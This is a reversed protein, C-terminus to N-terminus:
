RGTELLSEEASKLLIGKAGRLDKPDKPGTPGRAGRFVSRRQNLKRILKAKVAKRRTVVRRKM